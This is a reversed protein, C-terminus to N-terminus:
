KSKQQAHSTSNRQVLEVPIIVMEPPQEPNDILQVLMRVAEAGIRAMDQRVTTLSPDTYASIPTDDIGIISVEQPIQIGAERLAQIAGIGMKDNHAFIASFTTGRGLLKRVAHYGSEYNWDGSFSLDPDPRLGANQLACRYGEQRERTSDMSVPGSIQAIQSHNLEILHSVALMGAQYDDMSVVHLGECNSHLGIYVTTADTLVLRSRCDLDPNVVISGDTRRSGTLEEVLTGFVHEDPATVTILFYGLKRAESSAAEVISAYTYDVLNPSICALIFTQGRALSRASADPQYGLEIIAEQVRALTSPLVRDSGNIVRSVTQHSVGARAAVDRITIRDRAAM